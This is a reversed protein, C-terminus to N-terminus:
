WWLVMIRGYPRVVSDRWSDSEEDDSFVFPKCLDITLWCIRVDISWPIGFLLAMSSAPGLDDNLIIVM